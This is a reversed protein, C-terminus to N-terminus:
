LYTSVLVTGRDRINTISIYMYLYKYLYIPSLIHTYIKISVVGITTIKHIYIIKTIVSITQIGVPVLEARFFIFFYFFIFLSDWYITECGSVSESEGILDSRSDPSSLAPLQLLDIASGPDVLVKHVDFGNICLTLVIADYHPAIIRNPNIHPFSIPGDIPKTEEHEGEVHISNVEGKVTAARLLKEQQHKSQYQDDSPGGLIYNIALRSESPVTTDVTIRDTAQGSEGGRHDIEKIHRNIHDAKGGLFKPKPM